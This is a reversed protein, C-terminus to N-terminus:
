RQVSWTVRQYKVKITELKIGQKIIESHATATYGLHGQHKTVWKNIDIQIKNEGNIYFTPAQNVYFGCLIGQKTGDAFPIQPTVWWSFYMSARRCEQTCDWELKEAAYTYPRPVYSYCPTSSPPRNEWHVITPVGTESLGYVPKLIRWKGTPSSIQKYIQPIHTCVWRQYHTPAM